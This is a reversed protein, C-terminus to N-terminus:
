SLIFKFLLSLYTANETKADVKMYFFISDYSFLSNLMNARVHLLFISRGSLEFETDSILIKLEFYM